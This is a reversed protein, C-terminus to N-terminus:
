PIPVHSSGEELVIWAYLFFEDRTQVAGLFARYPRIGFDTFRLAGFAEVVLRGEGAEAIRARVERGRTFDGITIDYSVRFPFAEDDVREVGTTELRIRPHLDAALQSEGLMAERVDAAEGETLPRFPEPLLGLEQLRDETRAKWEQDDVRLERVELELSLEAEEPAEPDLEIRADYRDPRVLHDHAFRAAPGARQTVVALLTEEEVIRYDPLPRPDPAPAPLEAPAFGEAPLGALTLGAMALGALPLGALALGALPRRVLTLVSALTGTRM